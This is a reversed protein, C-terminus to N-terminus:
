EDAGGRVGEWMGAIRRDLSEIDFVEADTRIEGAIHTWPPMDHTAGLGTDLILKYGGDKCRLRHVNEYFPAEGRLHRNLDEYVADRDDPHIRRDWEERGDGIEDPADGLMEKWIPSFYARNTGADWDWVGTRSGEIAHHLREERQRLDAEAAKRDTIETLYSVLCIVNGDGDRILRTTDSVWATSGDPRVLRYDEHEVTDAGAEAAMGITALVRSRDAKDVVKAYAIAGGMLDARDYGVLEVVNDSVDVVPWDPAPTAERVIVVM